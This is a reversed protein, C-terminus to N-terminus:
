ITILHYDTGIAVQRAWGMAMQGLAFLAIDEAFWYASHARM